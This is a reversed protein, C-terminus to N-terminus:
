ASIALLAHLTNALGRPDTALWTGTVRIVTYSKLKLEADRRRDQEFSTPTRHYEYSDLEVILRTGPWHMDVEYGEVIANTVPRRIHHRMCFDLFDVELDSRTRRTGANVSATVAVFQKIGKRGRNRDILDRVTQETLWGSREAQNTARQLQKPTAVAALDLLTRAV